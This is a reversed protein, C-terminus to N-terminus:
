LKVTAFYGPYKSRLPVKFAKRGWSSYNSVGVGTASASHFVCRGARHYNPVRNRTQLEAETWCCMAIAALCGSWGEYIRRGHDRLIAKGMVYSDCGEPGLGVYTRAVILERM